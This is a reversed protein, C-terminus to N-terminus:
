EKILHIFGKLFDKDYAGRDVNIIRELAEKKRFVRKIYNGGDEHMFVGGCTMRDYSNAIWIIRGCVSIRDGTLGQPYGSGNDREHHQYVGQIVSLDTIGNSNLFDFGRAPHTKMVEFQAKSLRNNSKILEQPFNDQTKGIDHFLAAIGGSKAEQRKFGNVLYCGLTLICVNVGHITTDYRDASAMNVLNIMVNPDRLLGDIVIEITKSLAEYSSGRPEALTETAINTFTSKIRKPNGSILDEKLQANFREQTEGLIAVADAKRIYLHAPLTNMNIRSDIRIGAKKYPIFTGDRAEQYLVYDGCFPIQARRVEQVDGKWLLEQVKEPM